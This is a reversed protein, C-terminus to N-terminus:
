HAFIALNAVTGFIVLDVVFHAAFSSGLGYRRRIVTLPAAFLGALLMGSLGDRIGHRYALGFSVAQVFILSAPGLGSGAM